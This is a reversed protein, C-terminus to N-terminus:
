LRDQRRRPPDPGPRAPRGGHQVGQPVGGPEDPDGPTGEFARARYNLGVCVVKGPRAVPAGVREPSEGLPTLRGDRLSRRVREVGGGGLFDADIDRTVGSLDLLTGDGARVAPREAGAPGVRMLKM